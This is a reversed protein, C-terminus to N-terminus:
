HYYYYNHRAYRIVLIMSICCQQYCDSFSQWHVVTIKVVPM